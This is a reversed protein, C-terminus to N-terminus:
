DWGLKEKALKEVRERVCLPEVTEPGVPCELGAVRWDCDGRPHHHHRSLVRARESDVAEPMSSSEAVRVAIDDVGVVDELRGDPLNEPSLAQFGTHYPEWGGVRRLCDVAVQHGAHDGGPRLLIEGEGLGQLILNPADDPVIDEVHCESHFVPVGQLPLEELHRPLSELERTIESPLFVPVEEDKVLYPEVPEVVGEPLEEIRPVRLVELPVLVLSDHLLVVLQEVLKQSIKQLGSTGIHGDQKEGVM